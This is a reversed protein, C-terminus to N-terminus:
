PNSCKPNIDKFLILIILFVFIIAICATGEKQLAKIIDKFYPYFEELTIVRVFRNMLNDPRVGRRIMTSVAGVIVKSRMISDFEIKIAEDREALSILGVECLKTAFPIEIKNESLIITISDYHREFLDSAKTKENRSPKPMEKDPSLSVDQPPHEEFFECEAIIM